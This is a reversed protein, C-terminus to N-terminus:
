EDLDVVILDGATTTLALRKGDPTLADKLLAGHAPAFAGLDAGTAVDRVDIAGTPDDADQVAVVVPRGGAGPPGFEGGSLRMAGLELVTRGTATDVVRSSGTPEPVPPPRGSQGPPPNCLSQGDVLAFAGSQDLAVITDCPGLTTSTGTGLDFEQTQWNQGLGGAEAMDGSLRTTAPTDQRLDGVVNTINATAQDAFGRVVTWRDM